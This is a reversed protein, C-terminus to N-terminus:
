GLLVLALPLYIMAALLSYSVLSAAFARDLNELGAFVLTNFGVPAIAGLIVIKRELGELEFLAVFALALAGGAGVRLGIAWLAPRLLPLRPRFYIGLAVMVLLVAGGGLWQLGTLLAAPPEIGAANLGLAAALAWLPPFRLLRGGISRIDGARGGYLCALAYSVTLVVAGNGLDFLAFRAVGEAGWVALVLPYEVALNMIMTATIFVGRTAPPLELRRACWAALPWTLLLTLAAALPLKVLGPDLPTVTVSALILAPLGLYLVVQLMRDAAEEGAWRLRRAVVGLAFLALIPLIREVPVPM